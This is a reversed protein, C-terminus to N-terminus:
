RRVKIEYTNNNQRCNHVAMHTNAFLGLNESFADQEKFWQAM